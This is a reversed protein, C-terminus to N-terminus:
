TNAPYGAADLVNLIYDLTVNSDDYEIRAKKEDLSVNTYSVGELSDLAQRVTNLCSECGIGPITLTVATM